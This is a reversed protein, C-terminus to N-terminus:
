HLRAARVGIPKSEGNLQDQKTMWAERGSFDLRRFAQDCEQGLLKIQGKRRDASVALTRLGDGIMGAFRHRREAHPRRVLAIQFQHDFRGGLRCPGAVAALRDNVGDDVREFASPDDQRRDASNLPHGDCPAGPRSFAGVGSQGGSNRGRLKFLEVGEQRDVPLGASRRQRPQAVHGRRRLGVVYASKKFAQGLHARDAQVGFGGVGNVGVAKPLEGVLAAGRGRVQERAIPRRPAVGDHGGEHEVVFPTEGVGDQLHCVPDDASTERAAAIGFFSAIDRRAAVDAPQHPQKMARDVGERRRLVAADVTELGHVFGHTVEAPEVAVKQRRAFDSGDDSVRSKRRGGVFPQGAAGAFKIRPKLPKRRAERFVLDLAHGHYLVFDRDRRNARVFGLL